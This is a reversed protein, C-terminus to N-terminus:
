INNDFIHYEGCQYIATYDFRLASNWTAQWDICIWTPLDDNIYGCDEAISQAFDAESSYAGQYSDQADEITGDQNVDGQYMALLAREDEDLELFEPWLEANLGSESIYKDPVDQWDQFMFEPDYEEKHLEQCADYFEEKSTYDELNLWAGALSGANYKGYTSVYISPETIQKKTETNM